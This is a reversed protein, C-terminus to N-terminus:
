WARRILDSLSAHDEVHMPDRPGDPDANDAARGNAEGFPLLNGDGLGDRRVKREISKKVNSLNGM